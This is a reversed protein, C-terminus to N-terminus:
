TEGANRCPKVEAYEDAQWWEALAKMDADM